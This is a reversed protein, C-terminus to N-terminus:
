PLGITINSAKPKGNKGPLVDFRVTQGETVSEIGNSDLDSKHFFVDDAGDRSIFGFAKTTNYFKIKGSEAM